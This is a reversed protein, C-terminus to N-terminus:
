LAGIHVLIYIPVVAMLFKTAGRAFAGAETCRRNHEGVLGDVIAIVAGIALGLVGSTVVISVTPSLSGPLSPFALAIIHTDQGLLAAVGGMFLGAATGVGLSGVANARVSSGFQNGVVTLSTVVAAGILIVSWLPSTTLSVWASGLIATLGATVSASISEVLEERPQPRGMEVIAAVLVAAGLAVTGWAMDDTVRVAFVTSVGILTATIAAPYRNPAHVLGSWGNALILIAFIVTITVVDRLQTISYATAMVLSLVVVISASLYRLPVEIISRIGGANDPISTLQARSKSETRGRM